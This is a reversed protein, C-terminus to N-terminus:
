WQQASRAPGKASRPLSGKKLLFASAGFVMRFRRLGGKGVFSLAYRFLISPRLYFRRYFERHKKVLIEKTLGHPVFVPRWYNYQSWDTKDITGYREAEAFQQSGPIPTNLTVVIDDLKLQCALEITKDITDLTDTPHGLM